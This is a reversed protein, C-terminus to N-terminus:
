SKIGAALRRRKLHRRDSRCIKSVEAPSRSGFTYLIQINHNLLINDLFQARYTATLKDRQISNV